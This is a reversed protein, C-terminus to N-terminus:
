ISTNVMRLRKTTSSVFTLTVIIAVLFPNGRFVFILMGFKGSSSHRVSEESLGQVKGLAAARWMEPVESEDVSTVGCERM